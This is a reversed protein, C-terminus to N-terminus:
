ELKFMICYVVRLCQVFRQRKCERISRSQVAYECTLSSVWLASRQIHYNLGSIAVIEEIALLLFSFLSHARSKDLAHCAADIISECYESSYLSFMESRWTSPGAMKIGPEM